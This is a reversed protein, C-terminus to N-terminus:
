VNLLADDKWVDDHGPAVIFRWGPALGLYKILTEAKNLLHIAHLAVFFDPKDSFRSGSWIYWGTTDGEPPHRLGNLPYESPDFDRSIGVKLKLHCPFYGAGFIRCIARQASTIEDM